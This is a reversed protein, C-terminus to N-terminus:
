EHARAGTCTHIFFLAHGLGVRFRTCWVKTSSFELDTRMDDPMPVYIYWENPPTGNTKTVEGSTGPRGVAVVGDAWAAKREYIFTTEAHDAGCCYWFKLRPALARIAPDSDKAVMGRIYKSAEPVVGPFDVFGPQNVEWAAASVWSSDKVLAEAMDLRQIDKLPAWGNREMKNNVYEGHTPSLFGGVVRTNPRKQMAQKAMELVSLHGLHPPSLSGTSILVVLQTDTSVPNPGSVAQKLLKNMRAMPWSEPKPRSEPKPGGAFFNAVASIISAEM